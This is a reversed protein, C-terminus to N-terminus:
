LYQNCRLKKDKLFETLEYLYDEGINHGAYIM